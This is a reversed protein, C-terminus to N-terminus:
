GFTVKVEVPFSTSTPSSDDFSNMSKIKINKATNNELVIDKGSTILSGTDMNFLYVIYSSTIKIYKPCNNLLIRNGWSYIYGVFTDNEPMESESVSTFTVRCKTENAFGEVKIAWVNYDWTGLGKEGCDVDVLYNGKEPIHNIEKGDLLVALELDPKRFDPIRGRLVNFEKKEEYFAFTKYLTFGGLLLLIGVLSGLM